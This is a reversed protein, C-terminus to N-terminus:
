SQGHPGDWPIVREAVFEWSQEESWAATGDPQGYDPGADVHAMNNDDFRERRGARENNAREKM